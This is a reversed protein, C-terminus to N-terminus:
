VHGKAVPLILIFMSLIMSILLLPSSASPGALNVKYWPSEEQLEKLHKVRCFDLLSADEEM